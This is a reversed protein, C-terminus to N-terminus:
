TGSGLASNRMITEALAAALDQTFPKSRRAIRCRTDKTAPVEQCPSDVVEQTESAQASPSSFCGQREFQKPM